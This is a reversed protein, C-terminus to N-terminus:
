RALFREVLPGWVAPGGDDFLLDHGEAMPADPQAFTMRDGAAAFAASMALALEPTVLHDNQASVWLTPARAKAGLQGAADVLLDPRCVHGAEADGRTGGYPALVIARTGAPPDSAAYALTALGGTDWGLVVLGDPRAGPLKRAFAVALKIDHAGELAARAYDPSACSGPDEAWGGGSPGYGRRLPAVVLYGRTVFWRAVADSCSPLRIDERTGDRDPPGHNLVLVPAPAHGAPRCIRAQLSFPDGYEDKDPIRALDGDDLGLSRTM